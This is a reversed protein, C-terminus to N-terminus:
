GEDAAEPGLLPDDIRVGLRLSALAGNWVPGWRVADEPWFALTMLCQVGRGRALAMRSRAERHECPDVVRLETWVLELDDRGADVVPGEAIRDEDAADITERLLRSLPLATWDAPPLQLCSVALTCTSLEPTAGDRIDTQPTGPTVSWGAPCEFMVAGGNLVVIKRGPAARWRHDEPLQYTDRTWTM